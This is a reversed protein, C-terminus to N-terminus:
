RIYIVIVSIDDKEALRVKKAEENIHSALCIPDLNETKVDSLLKKIWNGDHSILGDSVMVIVDGKHKVM